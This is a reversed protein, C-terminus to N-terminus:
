ISRIRDILRNVLSKQKNKDMPEITKQVMQVPMGNPRILEVLGAQLLAFVVRRIQLDDMNVVRAIQQITNKPNVYGVVKWEDSSLDVNKINTDPRDTFKLAMDLSPIEAKLDELEEVERAGEVILSELALRTPIKDEPAMEGAEFHFYGEVWTFLRRMLTAYYGELLHFVEGQSLYNSNMLYLGIEKDSMGQLRPSLLNFQATSILKGDLALQVLSSESNGIQAFSLRGEKFTIAAVDGVGEIHLGGSKKALSILNLLQTISFDRLNGKLAM